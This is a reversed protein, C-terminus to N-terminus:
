LMLIHVLYLINKFYILSENKSLVQIGTELAVCLAARVM